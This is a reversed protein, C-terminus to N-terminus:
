TEARQWSQQAVHFLPNVKCNMLSFCESLVASCSFCSTRRTLYYFQPFFPIKPGFRNSVTVCKILPFIPLIHMKFCFSQNIEGKKSQNLQVMTTKLSLLRVCLVRLARLLLCSKIKGLFAGHTLFVHPSDAPVNERCGCLRNMEDYSCLKYTLSM